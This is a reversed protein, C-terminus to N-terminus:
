AEAIYFVYGYQTQFDHFMQADKNKFDDSIRRAVARDHHESEYHLMRTVFPHYYERWDSVPQLFQDVIRYGRFAFNRESEDRQRVAIGKSKWFERIPASPVDDLWVLDNVAIRGGPRLLTRWWTLAADLGMEHVSGECWILDFKTGPAFRDDMSGCVPRIRPVLNAEKARLYLRHLFPGCIDIATITAASWRALLLTAAGTGCGFEIIQEFQRDRSAMEWAKRTSKESGPGLRDLKAQLPIMAERIAEESIVPRPPSSAAGLWGASSGCTRSKAKTARKKAPARKEASDMERLRAVWADVLEQNQGNMMEDLFGKSM